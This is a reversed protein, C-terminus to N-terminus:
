AARKRRALIAAICIALPATGPEPITRFLWGGRGEVGFTDGPGGTTGILYFDEGNEVFYDVQAQRHVGQFILTDTVGLVQPFGNQTLTVGVLEVFEIAAQLDSTVGVDLGASDWLEIVDDYTALQFDKYEEEQLLVILENYSLGDTVTVDLWQRGTNQDLTISDAGFVADDLSVLSQGHAHYTSVFLLTAFVFGLIRM